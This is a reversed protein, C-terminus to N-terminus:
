TAPQAGYWTAHSIHHRTAERRQCRSCTPQAVESHGRAFADFCARCFLDPFDGDVSYLIVAEMPEESALLHACTLAALGEGHVDCPVFDATEPSALGLSVLCRANFREALKRRLPVESRFGRLVPDTTDVVRGTGGAPSREVTVHAGATGPLGPWDVLLRDDADVWLVASLTAKPDGIPIAGTVREAAAGEPRPPTWVAEFRDPPFMQQCDDCRCTLAHTELKILKANEISGTAV